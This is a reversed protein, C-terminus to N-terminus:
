KLFLMKSASAPSHVLILTTPLHNGLFTGDVVIFVSIHYAIVEVIINHEIACSISRYACAELDYNIHFDMRDSVLVLTYTLYNQPNEGFSVQALFCVLM